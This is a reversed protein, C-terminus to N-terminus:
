LEENSIDKFRDNRVAWAMVAHVNPVVTVGNGDLHKTGPVPLGANGILCLHSANLNEKREKGGNIQPLEPLSAPYTIVEIVRTTHSERGVGQRHTDVAKHM